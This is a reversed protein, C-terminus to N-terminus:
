VHTRWSKAKALLHCCCVSNCERSRPLIWCFQRLSFQRFSYIYTRAHTRTRTHTHTHTRTRAHTNKQM